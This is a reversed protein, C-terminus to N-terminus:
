KSGSETPKVRLFGCVELEHGLKNGVTFCGPPTELDISQDGAFDKLASCSTFLLSIAILPVLKQFTSGSFKVEGYRRALEKKVVSDIPLRNQNFSLRGNQLLSESYHALGLAHLFEHLIVNYLYALRKREKKDINLSGCVGCHEMFESQTPQSVFGLTGGEGDIDVWLFPIDAGESVLVLKVDCVRQIASVVKQIETKVESSKYGTVTTKPFSFTIAEGLDAKKWRLGSRKPTANLFFFFRKFFYWFNM